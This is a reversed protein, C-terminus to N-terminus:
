CRWEPDSVATEGDRRDTLAERNRTLCPQYIDDGRGPVVQDLIAVIRGGFVRANLEDRARIPAKSPITGWLPESTVDSHM